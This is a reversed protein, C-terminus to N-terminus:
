NLFAVLKIFLCCLGLAEKLVGYVGFALRPKAIDKKNTCAQGWYFHVCWSCARSNVGKTTPWVATSVDFPNEIYSHYCLHAQTFTGYNIWSHGSKNPLLTARCNKNKAASVRLSTRGFKCNSLKM